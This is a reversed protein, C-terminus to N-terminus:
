RSSGGSRVGAAYLFISSFCRASMAAQHTPCRLFRRRPPIPSRRAPNVPCAAPRNGEIAQRWCRLSRGDVGNSRAWETPSQANVAAATLCCEADRRNKIKRRQM